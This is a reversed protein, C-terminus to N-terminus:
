CNSIFNVFESLVDILIVNVGAPPYEGSALVSSSVNPLCVLDVGPQSLDIPSSLKLISIDNDYTSSSYYPHIYINSVDRVQGVTYLYISGVYVRVASASSLGITCHAATLIHSNSIISGGCFHSGSSSYRLSAAWGWTQSSAPQGGVIKTVVASNASCGCPASPSCTYTTSSVIKLLTVFLLILTINLRRNMKSRCYFPTINFYYPLGRNINDKKEAQQDVIIVKFKEEKSGISM